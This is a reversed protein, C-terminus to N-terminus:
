GKGFASPLLRKRRLNKILGTPKIGTGSGVAPRNIERVLLKQLPQKGQVKFAGGLLLLCGFEVFGLGGAFLPGFFHKLGM